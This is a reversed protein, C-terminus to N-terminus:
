FTEDIKILEEKEHSGKRLKAKEWSTVEQLRRVRHSATSNSVEQDLVVVVLVGGSLQVGGRSKLCVCM